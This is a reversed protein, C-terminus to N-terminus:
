KKRLFYPGCSGEHTQAYAWKGNEDFLYMDALQFSEDVRLDAAALLQANEIYWAEDKCQFFLYAGDKKCCNFARKANAGAKANVKEYSFMHWKFQRYHIEKKTEPSLESAFFADWKRVATRKSISKFRLGRAEIAKCHQRHNYEYIHQNYDLIKEQLEDLLKERAAAEEVDDLAGIEQIEALYAGWDILRRYNM